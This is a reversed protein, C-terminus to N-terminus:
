MEPGIYVHWVFESQVFTNLFDGHEPLLQGTGRVYVMVPSVRAESDVEAWICPQGTPDLGASIFGALYGGHVNITQTDDIKIPYKFIRRDM